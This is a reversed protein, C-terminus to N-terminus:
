ICKRTNKIYKIDNVVLMLTQLKEKLIYSESDTSNIKSNSDVVKEVIKSITFSYQETKM